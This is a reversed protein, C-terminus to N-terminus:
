VIAEILTRTGLHVEHIGPQKNQNFCFSVMYGTTLHYYDLYESLQQEGRENYANGRWIKLEVIYQHGLYDIIVDTRTMDRTQAECYYNGVGNIIPRLYTLFIKRADNEIFKNDRDMRYTQNMHVVFREMLHPMDIDGDNIFQSKDEIGQQFFPSNEEESIFLNYLRVEMIRCAVAVKGGKDTIYNFMLAMQIYKEDPNYSKTKGSFLIGKFLNYFLLTIQLSQMVFSASKCTKM